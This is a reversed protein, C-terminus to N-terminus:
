IARQIALDFQALVSDSPFLGSVRKSYKAIGQIFDALESVPKPTREFQTPAM